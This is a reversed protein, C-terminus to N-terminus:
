ENFIYVYYGSGHNLPNGKVTATWKVKQGPTLNEIVKKGTHGPTSAIVFEDYPADLDTTFVCDEPLTVSQRAYRFEIIGDANAIVTGYVQKEQSDSRNGCAVSSFGIFLVLAIKCLLTKKIKTTMIM